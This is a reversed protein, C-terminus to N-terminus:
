PDILKAAEPSPDPVALYHEAPIDILGRLHLMKQDAPSLDNIAARVAKAIQPADQGNATIYPLAPSPETAAVERLEADLNSHEKLLEWTLADLAAYDARGEAAAAASLAHGGTELVSSPLRSHRSLHVMPAAWGSQSLAENYAFTGDALQDLDRTDDKRAVIVSRYYGPPCGALGYDPTGVLQVKGHLRTRYPMGCTQSFVLDPSHWVDWVDAGRTLHAPGIEIHARILSWFRDNAPQLAPMDYMGLMSIM